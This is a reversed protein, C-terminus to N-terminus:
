ETELNLTKGDFSIKSINPLIFQRFKSLKMRKRINNKAITLPRSKVEKYTGVEIVRKRLLFGYLHVIKDKLHYKCGEFLTNYVGECTYRSNHGIGVTLSERLSDLMEQKAKAELENAARVLRVVKEDRKYVRALNVKHSILYQSLEKTEKSRYTLSVFRCGRAKALEEILEMSLSYWRNLFVDVIIESFKM